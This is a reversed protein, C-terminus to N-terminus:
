PTRGKLRMEHIRIEQTRIERREEKKNEDRIRRRIERRKEKKNEDRIRRVERVRIEKIEYVSLFKQVKLCIM